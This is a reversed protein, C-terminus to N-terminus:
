KLSRELMSRTWNNEMKNQYQRYIDKHALQLHRVFNGTNFKCSVNMKCAKCRATQSTNPLAEFHEWIMPKAKQAKKMSGARNMSSSRGVPKGPKPQASTLAESTSKRRQAMYGPAPM